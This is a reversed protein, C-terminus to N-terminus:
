KRVAEQEEDPSTAKMGLWTMRLGLFLVFGMSQLSPILFSAIMAILAPSISAFLTMKLAELFNFKRISSKTLSLLFVTLSMILIVGVNLLSSIGAYTFSGEIKIPEYAENFLSVWKELVVKQRESEQASSTSYYNNFNKLSDSIDKFTGSTMGIPDDSTEVTRVGNDETYTCTADKAYIYLYLDNQTFILINKLSSKLTTDEANTNAIPYSTKLKNMTSTLKDSDDVFKFLLTVNEEYKIEVTDSYNCTLIGDESISMKIKPDANEEKKLYENTFTKLSYDLNYNEQATILDSGNQGMTSVFSPVIAVICSVIALVIGLWWPQKKSEEIIVGNNFLSSFIFQVPNM